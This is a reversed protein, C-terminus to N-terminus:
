EERLSAIVGNFRNPKNEAIYAIIQLDDGIHNDKPYLRALADNIKLQQDAQLLASNEATYPIYAPYKGPIAGAPIADAVPNLKAAPEGAVQNLKAPSKESMNGKIELFTEKGTKLLKEIGEPTWVELVKNEGSLEEDDEDDEYAERLERHLQLNEAELQRLREQTQANLIAHSIAAEMEAKAVYKTLDVGERQPQNQQPMYYIVEGNEGKRPAGMSPIGISNLVFTTSMQSYRKRMKKAGPLTEHDNEDIGDSVVIRYPEISESFIEAWQAFSEAADKATQGKYNYVAQKSNDNKRYIEFCCRDSQLIYKEVAAAGTLEAM